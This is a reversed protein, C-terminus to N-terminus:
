FHRHDYRVTLEEGRQELKRIQQSLGEVTAELDAIRESTILDPHAEVLERRLKVVDTEFLRGHILSAWPEGADYGVERVRGDGAGLLAMAAKDDGKLVRELFREARHAAIDGIYGNAYEELRDFEDRVIQEIAHVLVVRQNQNLFPQVVASHDEQGSHDHVDPIYM